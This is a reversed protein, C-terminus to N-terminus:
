YKYEDTIEKNNEINYITYTQKTLFTRDWIIIYSNKLNSSKLLEITKQADSYRVANYTGFLFYTYITNDMLFNNIIRDYNDHILTYNTLTQQLRTDCEISIIKIQPLTNYLLENLGFDVLNKVIRNNILDSIIKSRISLFNSFGKPGTM